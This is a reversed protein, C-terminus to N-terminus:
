ALGSFCFISFSFLRVFGLGLGVSM